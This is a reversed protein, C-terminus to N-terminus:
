KGSLHQRFAVSIDCKLYDAASVGALAFATEAPEPLKRHSSTAAAVSAISRALLAGVPGTDASSITAGRAAGRNWIATATNEIGSWELGGLRAACLGAITVTACLLVLAFQRPRAM